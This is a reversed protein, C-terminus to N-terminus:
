TKQSNEQHPAQQLWRPRHLPPFLLWHTMLVRQHENYSVHDLSLHSFCGVLWLSENASPTAQMTSPSAVLSDNRSTPAQQPWHPPLPNDDCNSSSNKDIILPLWHPPWQRWWLLLWTMIDTTYINSFYYFPFFFPMSCGNPSPPRMKLHQTLLSESPPFSPPRLPRLSSSPPPPCM